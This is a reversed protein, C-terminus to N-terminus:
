NQRNDGRERDSVAGTERRLDLALAGYKTLTRAGFFVHSPSPQCHPKLLEKM